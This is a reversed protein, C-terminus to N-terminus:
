YTHDVWSIHFEATRKLSAFADSAKLKDVLASMAKAYETHPAVGDDSAGAQDYHDSYADSDFGHEDELDFFGQYLWDGTNYKLDKINEEQNYKDPYDAQYKALSEAFDEESNLCLMDADIAFAYFTEDGHSAAFDRVSTQVVDFLQDLDFM